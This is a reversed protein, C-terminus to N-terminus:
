MGIDPALDDSTIIKSVGESSTKCQSYSAGISHVEVQGERSFEQANDEKDHKGALSIGSNVATTPGSKPKDVLSEQEVLIGPMPKPNIVEQVHVTSPLVTPEMDTMDLHSIDELIPTLDKM